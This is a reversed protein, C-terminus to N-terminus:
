RGFSERLPLNFKVWKLGNRRSLPTRFSPKTRTEVHIHKWKHTSSKTAPDRITKLSCRLQKTKSTMSPPKGQSPRCLIWYPLRVFVQLCREVDWWAAQYSIEEVRNGVWAVTTSSAHTSQLCSESVPTLHTPLYRNCWARKFRSINNHERVPTLVSLSVPRWFWGNDGSGLFM